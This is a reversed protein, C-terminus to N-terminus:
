STDIGGEITYLAGVILFKHKLHCIKPSMWYFLGHKIDVIIDLTVIVSSTINSTIILM